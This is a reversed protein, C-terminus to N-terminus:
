GIHMQRLDDQLDGKNVPRMQPAAPFGVHEAVGSLVSVEANYAQQEQVQMSRNTTYPHVYEDVDTEWRRRNEQKSYWLEGVEELAKERTARVTQFYQSHIQSREAVFRRQMADYRYRFLRQEHRIKDDRRADLCQLMALHDPHTSTPQTLLALENSLQQLREDYLRTQYVM